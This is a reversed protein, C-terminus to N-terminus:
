FGLRVKVVTTVADDTGYIKRVYFPTPEVPLGAVLQTYVRGPRARTDVKLVGTTGANVIFITRCQVGYLAVIDIDDAGITVETVDDHPENVLQERATM